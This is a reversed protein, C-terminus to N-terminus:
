PNQIDETTKTASTLFLSGATNGRPVEPRFQSIIFMYFCLSCIMYLTIGCYTVYWALNLQIWSFAAHCVVYSGPCALDPFELEFKFPREYGPVALEQCGWHRQGPSSRTWKNSCTQRLICVDGHGQSRYCCAVARDWHFSGSAFSWRAKQASVQIKMMEDYYEDDNPKVAAAIQEYMWDLRGFAHIWCGDDMWM